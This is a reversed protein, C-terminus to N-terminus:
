GALRFRGSDVEVVPYRLADLRDRMPDLLAGEWREFAEQIPDCEPRRSM